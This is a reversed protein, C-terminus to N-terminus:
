EHDVEGDADRADAEAAADGGKGAKEVPPTVLAADQEDDGGAVDGLREDDAVHLPLREKIRLGDLLSARHAPGQLIGGIGAGEGRRRFGEVAEGDAGDGLVAGGTGIRGAVADDPEVGVALAKGADGGRQAEAGEAADLGIEEFAAADVLDAGRCVAVV